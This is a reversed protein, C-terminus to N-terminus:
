PTVTKPVKEKRHLVDYGQLLPYVIPLETVQPVLREPGPSVLKVEKVPVMVGNPVGAITAHYVYLTGDVDINFVVVDGLLHTFNRVVDPNVKIGTSVCVEKTILASPSQVRSM